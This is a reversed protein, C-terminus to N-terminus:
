SQLQINNNFRINVQSMINCIFVYRSVNRLNRSKGDFYSYNLRLKNNNATTM